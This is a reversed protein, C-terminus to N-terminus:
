DAPALFKINVWWTGGGYMRHVKVFQEGGHRRIQVGEDGFVAQIVLMEGIGVVAQNSDRLALPWEHVVPYLTAEGDVTIFQKGLEFVPRATAPPLPSPQPRPAAAALAGTGACGLVLPVLIALVVFTEISGQRQKM